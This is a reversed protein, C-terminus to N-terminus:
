LAKRRKKVLQWKPNNIFKWTGLRMARIPQTPDPDDYKIVELEGSVKVRARKRLYKKDWTTIDKLYYVQGEDTRVAAKQKLVTARGVVTINEKPITDLKITDLPFSFEMLSLLHLILLSM